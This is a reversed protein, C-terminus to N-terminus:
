TGSIWNWPFAEMPQRDSETPDHPISAVNMVINQARTVGGFAVWLGPPVTLRGHTGPAEPGIIWDGKAEGADNYVMVQVAGVPVVFNLTMVRHRKWGKVYGCEVISFYAEGFGAFGEDEKKIGHLIDGGLTSIRRLPTLFPDNTM